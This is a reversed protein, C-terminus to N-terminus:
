KVKIVHYRTDPKIDSCALDNRSEVKVCEGTEQSIHVYPLPDTIYYSFLLIGVVMGVYVATFVRDSM